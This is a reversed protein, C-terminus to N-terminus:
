DVRQLVKVFGGFVCRDGVGLVDIGAYATMIFETGRSHNVYITAVKYGSFWDNEPASQEPDRAAAIAMHKGEGGTREQSESGPSNSGGNDPDPVGEGPPINRRSSAGPGNFDVTGKSTYILIKAEDGDEDFSGPATPAVDPGGNDGNTTRKCDAVVSVPGVTAIVKRQTSHEDDGFPQGAQVGDVLKRGIALSFRGIRAENTTGVDPGTVGSGVAIVQGTIRCNNREDNERIKKTRDVCAVLYYNGNPTSKSLTLKVRRALDAHAKLRRVVTKSKRAKLRRDGKRPNRQKKALYFRVTTLRRTDKSGQNSVTYSEQFSGGAAAGDPPEALSSV